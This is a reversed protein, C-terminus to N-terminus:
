TKTSTSVKCGYQTRMEALCTDIIPDVDPPLHSKKSENYEGKRWKQTDFTGPRNLPVADGYFLDPMM